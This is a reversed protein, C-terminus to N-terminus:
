VGSHGPHQGHNAASSDQGNILSQELAPSDDDLAGKGAAPAAAVARLRLFTVLQCLTALAPITALVISAAYVPEAMLDFTMLWTNPPAGSSGSNAFADCIYMALRFEDSTCSQSYYSTATPNKDDGVLQNFAGCLSKPGQHAAANAVKSWGAAFVILLTIASIFPVLALPISAAHATGMALVKNIPEPFYPESQPHFASLVLCSVVCTSALLMVLGIIFFALFAQYQGGVGARKM